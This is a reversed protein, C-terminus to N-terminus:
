KHYFTNGTCKLINRNINKFSNNIHAQSSDVTKVATDPQTTLYL